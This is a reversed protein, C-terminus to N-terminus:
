QAWKNFEQPLELDEQSLDEGSWRKFNVALYLKIGSTNADKAFLRQEAYEEIKLIACRVDHLIDAKDTFTTLKEREDLGLALALGSLTPPHTIENLVNGSEDYVPNGSKDLVYGYRSDFYAKIRRQM